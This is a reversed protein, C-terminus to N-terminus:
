APTAFHNRIRRHHRAAHRVALLYGPNFSASHAVVDGKAASKVLRPTCKQMTQVLSSGTKWQNGGKGKIRFNKVINDSSGPLM